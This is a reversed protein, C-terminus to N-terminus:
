RRITERCEVVKLNLVSTFMLNSDDGRVSAYTVGSIEDYELFAVIGTRRAFKGKLITVKDGTRANIQM